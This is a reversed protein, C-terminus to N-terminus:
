TLQLNNLPGTVVAFIVALSLAVWTWKIRATWSKEVVTLIWAGLSAVVYIVVVQMSAAEGWFAFYLTCLAGAVYAAALAYKM